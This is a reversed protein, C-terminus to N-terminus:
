TKIRCKRGNRVDVIYLRKEGEMDYTSNHHTIFLKIQHENIFEGDEIDYFKLEPVQLLSFPVKELKGMSMNYSYIKESDCERFYLISNKVTIPEIEEACEYIIQTHYDDFGIIRYVNDFKVTCYVTQKETAINCFTLEGVSDDFSLKKASTLLSDIRFLQNAYGNSYLTQGICYLNEESICGDYFFPGSIQDLDIAVDFIKKEDECVRIIKSSDFQYYTNNSAVIRKYNYYYNNDTVEIQSLEAKCQEEIDKSVTLSNSYVVLFILTALIISIFIASLKLINIKSRM